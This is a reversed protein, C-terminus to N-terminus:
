YRNVLTGTSVGGERRLILDLVNHTCGECECFQLFASFKDGKRDVSIIGSVTSEAFSGVKEGLNLGLFAPMACVSHFATVVRETGHGGTHLDEENNSDLRSAARECSRGKLKQRIVGRAIIIM